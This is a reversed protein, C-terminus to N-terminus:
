ALATCWLMADQLWTLWNLTLRFGHDPVAGDLSRTNNIRNADLLLVAEPDIAARVPPSGSRYTYDAQSQEHSWWERADSGDAFTTVVQVARTNSDFVAPGRRSAAVTTRYDGGPERATRIDGLEYDVDASETLAHDFLSTADVASQDRVISVVDQANPVRGRTRDRLTTLAQQLAPRGILRELSHFARVTRDVARPQPGAVQLVIPRPDRPGRSWSVSRITYPVFGGFYYRTEFNRGELVDNIMRAASYLVLGEQFGGDAPAERSWYQSALGVIISRELASDVDAALWRESVFIVDRARSTQPPWPSAAITLHDGPYPGLWNEFQQVANATFVRVREQSRGSVSSDLAIRLQSTSQAQLAPASLALLLLVLRQGSRLTRSYYLVTKM